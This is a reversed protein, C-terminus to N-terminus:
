DIESNLEFGTATRVTRASLDVFSIRGAPHVQTVWVSAPQSDGPFPGAYQPASALDLPSAILTALDIAEVRYLRKQDHRLTVAAHSGDQSFVFELPAVDDTLKLQSYGAALDVVSYGQAVDVAREYPDSVRSGPEPRHLVIATRGDPAIGITRVLKQLRPFVTVEATDLDLLAFAESASANTFLAARRGDPSLVAQGPAATCPSSTDACDHGPLAVDATEMLDPDALGEPLPFWAVQSTQRLVAVALAGDATLDLDSAPAPLTVRSLTRTAVDIVGVEATALSRLLVFEGHPPATAERSQVSAYEDPLSLRDPVPKAEPNTLDIFAIEGQGVIVADRVEDDHLRFIVQTHRRGAAREIVPAPTGSALASLRVLAVIGEAGADVPEGDPTWLLAWAGDPSVSLASFRRPLKQTRLTPGNEGATLLSLARGARSVIVAADQGPSVQLAVPEDPLKVADIVLKQPDIVAVSDADPSLAFVYRDSAAPRLFTRDDEQEPPLGSADVCRFDRCTLGFDCDADTFCQNRDYDDAGRDLMDESAMACSVLLAALGIGGLRTAQTMNM